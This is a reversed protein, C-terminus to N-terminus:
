VAMVEFRTVTSKELMEPVSVCSTIELCEEQLWYRLHDVALLCVLM